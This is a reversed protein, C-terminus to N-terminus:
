QVRVPENLAREIPWQRRLRYRLNADSIGKLRAWEAITHTVGDHTIRHNNRRNNQQERMTAWKVNGPAYGLNTDIREISFRANPRPGVHQLFAEFSALWEACVVIGRGGYDKFDQGTVRSCRAKM